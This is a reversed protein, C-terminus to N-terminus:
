DTVIVIKIKLGVLTVFFSSSSYFGDNIDGSLKEKKEKNCLLSWMEWLGGPYGFDFGLLHSSFIWM